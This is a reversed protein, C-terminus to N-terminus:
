KSPMKMWLLQLMIIPLLMYLMQSSDQSEKLLSPILLDLSTYFQVPPFIQQTSPIWVAMGAENHFLFHLESSATAMDALFHLLGGQSRKIVLLRFTGFLELLSFFDRSRITFAMLPSQPNSTLGGSFATTSSIRTHNWATADMKCYKHIQPPLHLHM